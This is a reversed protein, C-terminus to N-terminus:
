NRFVFNFWKVLKYEEREVLIFDDDILKFLRLIEVVETFADTNTAKFIVGTNHVEFFEYRVLV